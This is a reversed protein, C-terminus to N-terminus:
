HLIEVQEERHAIADAVRRLHRLPAGAVLEARCPLLHQRLLPLSTPRPDSSGFQLVAKVRILPDSPDPLPRWPRREGRGTRMTKTFLGLASIEASPSNM